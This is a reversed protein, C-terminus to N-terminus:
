ESAKPSYSFRIFWASSDLRSVSYTIIKSTAPDAGQPTEETVSIESELPAAWSKLDNSIQIKLEADTVQPNVPYQFVLGNIDQSVTQSMSPLSTIDSPDSGHIYEALNFIGDLDPDASPSIISPDVEDPFYSLIWTNFSFPPEESSLTSFFAGGNDGVSLYGLDSIAFGRVRSDLQAGVFDWIRGDASAIYQYDSTEAGFDSHIGVFLGDIYRVQGVGRLEGPRDVGLPLFREFTEGQDESILGNDAGIAIIKDGGVVVSTFSYDPDNVVIEWTLGDSSKALVGNTTVAWLKGFGTAMQEITFIPAMVGEQVWTQANQSKWVQGSFTIGIWTEGLKELQAIRQSSSDFREDGLFVSEWNIGDTSTIVGYAWKTADFDYLQGAAVFRDGDFDVDPFFGGSFVENFEVGDSSYRLREGVVVFQGKGFEVDMSTRDSLIDVKQFADLFDEVEVNFHNTSINGYLGNAEASFSYDGSSLWAKQVTEGTRSILEDDFIWRVIGPDSSGDDVEFSLPTINRAKVKLPAVIQVAPPDPINQAGKFRIAVDYYKQNNLDDTGTTVPTVWFAGNPDAFTRGLDLPADRFGEASGPRSDLLISRNEQPQQYLLPGRNLYPDKESLGRFGLWLPLSGTSIKLTRTAGETLKDFPYLRFLGDASVDVIENSEIWGAQELLIPNPFGSAERGSGMVDWPSGYELLESDDSIIKSDFTQLASSHGPGFNHISEHVLVHPDYERIIQSKNGALGAWIWDSDPMVVNTICVVHADYEAVNIGLAAALAISDQILESTLDGEQYHKLPHPARLVRDIVDGKILERGGSFDEVWKSMTGNVLANLHGGTLPSGTYDSFDTRIYLFKKTPQPNEDSLRVPVSTESASSILKFPGNTKVKESVSKIFEDSPDIQSDVDSGNLLFPLVLFATLLANLLFFNSGGTARKAKMQNGSASVLKLFFQTM